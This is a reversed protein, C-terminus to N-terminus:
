FPGSVMYGPLRKNDGRVPEPKTYSGMVGPDTPGLVKISRKIKEKRVDQSHKSRAERAREFFGPRHEDHDDGHFPQWSGRKQQTTKLPSKPPTNPSTRSSPSTPSHPTSSPEISIRNPGLPPPRTKPRSVSHSSNYSSRQESTNNFTPSARNESISPRNPPISPQVPSTPESSSTAASTRVIALGDSLRIMKGTHVSSAASPARVHDPVTSAKAQPYPKKQHAVANFRKRFKLPKSPPFFKSFRLDDRLMQDVEMDPIQGSRLQKGQASHAPKGKFNQRQTGVSLRRPVWSAIRSSRRQRNGMTVTMNEGASEAEDNRSASRPSSNNSSKRWELPPPILQDSLGANSTEDPRQLSPSRDNPPGSRLVKEQRVSLEQYQDTLLDHYDQFFSLKRTEGNMEPDEWNDDSLLNNRNGDRMRKIRSHQLSSRRRERAEYTNSKLTGAEMIRAQEWPSWIGLSAFAKQKTSADSVTSGTPSATRMADENFPGMNLMSGSHAPQQNLEVDKDKRSSVPPLPLPSSPPDRPPGFYGPAEREDIPLLQSRQPNPSAAQGTLLEVHRDSTELPSEPLLPSYQRHRLTAPSPLPDKADLNGNFWEAPAKWSNGSPTRHPTPPPSASQAAPSNAQPPTPPLPKNDTSSPHPPVAKIFSKFSRVPRDMGELLTPSAIRHAAQHISVAYPRLPQSCRSHIIADVHKSVVGELLSNCVFFLHAARAKRCFRCHIFLSVILSAKGQSATRSRICRLIAPISGRSHANHCTDARNSTPRSPWMQREEDVAGAQNSISPGISTSASVVTHLQHQM